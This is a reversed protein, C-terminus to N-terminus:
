CSILYLVLMQQDTLGIYQEWAFFLWWQVSHPSAPIITLPLLLFRTDLGVQMSQLRYKRTGFGQKVVADQRYM